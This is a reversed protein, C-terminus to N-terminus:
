KLKKVEKDFDSFFNKHEKEKFKKFEKTSKKRAESASVNGSNNLLRKGATKLFDDLKLIWDQMTMPIENTVQLEAFDLYLSVILNLQKLEKEGLYNKAITIDSETLYNGKFNTLGMQPM